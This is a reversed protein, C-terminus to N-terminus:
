KKNIAFHVCMIAVLVNIVPILSTVVNILFIKFEMERCRYIESVMILVFSSFAIFWYLSM